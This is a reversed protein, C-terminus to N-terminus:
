EYEVGLEKLFNRIQVLKTNTTRVTFTCETLEEEVVEVPITVEEEVPTAEAMNDQWDNVPQSKLKDMEKHRNLVTLQASALDLTKLYEVLTEEANDCAKILRVDSAIREIERKIKEKHAKESTSLRVNPMVREVTIVGRLGNVEIYENAFSYLKMIMDQRQFDEIRDIQGKLRNDADDLKSKILSNYEEEFVEYPKMIQEKVMRRREELASKIKRIRTRTSKIATKNDETFELSMANAIEKDVEKSIIELTQRIKPLQEVVVYESLDLKEEEM